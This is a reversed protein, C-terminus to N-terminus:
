SRNPMMHSMADWMQRGFHEAAERGRAVRSERPTERLLCALGFGVVAGLGFAIAVSQAPRAQITREAEDYGHRLADYGQRATQAVQAAGAQIRERAAEATRSTGEAVEGLFDEIAARSEGTKRQIKGILQDVNGSFTQLDDDSLQGWKQKIKGSVENWNGALVQQNVM